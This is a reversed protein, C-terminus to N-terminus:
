ETPNGSSVGLDVSLAAELEEISPMSGRLGEPLEQTLQTEWQAIGIPHRSGELAYEVVVRNKNRVLLLGMTPQDEPHCLLKDIARM